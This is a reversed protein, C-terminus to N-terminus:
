PACHDSAHLQRLPALCAHGYRVLGRLRARRAAPRRLRDPHYRLCYQGGAACPGRCGPREGLGVVLVAPPDSRHRPRLTVRALKGDVTDLFTMIWAAVLGSAYQGAAFQYFAIIVFVLSALTVMNPSIGVHACFRTAQRAPWPWVHKTVLDTVGKYSAAFTRREIEPLAVVDLAGLYPAERKRLRRNYDGALAAPGVVSFEPPLGRAPGGLHQAATAVQEASVLAAVACGSGDDVLVTGPAAKTLAVVLSEDFVWGDHILLAPGAQSAVATADTSIQAVGAVRLQRWLREAGTLGWIKPSGGGGVLIALPISVAADRESSRGKASWRYTMM